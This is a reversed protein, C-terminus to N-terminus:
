LAWIGILNHAWTTQRGTCSSLITGLNKKLKVPTISFNLKMLELFVERYKSTLEQILINSTYKQGIERM